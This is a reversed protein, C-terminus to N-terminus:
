RGTDSPRPPRRVPSLPSRPAPLPPLCLSPRVGQGRCRRPCAASGGRSRPGSGRDSRPMAGIADPPDRDSRDGQATPPHLPTFKERFVNHGVIPVDSFVANGGFIDLRDVTNLVYAFDGRGLAKQWADRHRQATLMSSFSDLLVVGKDSVIGLQAGGAQTDRLLHIRPTLKKHVFRSEDADPAASLLGMSFLFVVLVVCARKM